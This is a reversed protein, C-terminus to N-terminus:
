ARQLATALVKVLSADNEPVLLKLHGVSEARVFVIDKVRPFDSEREEVDREGEQLKLIIKM